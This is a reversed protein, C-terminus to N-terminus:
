SHSHQNNTICNGDNDYIPACEGSICDKSNECEITYKNDTNTLCYRGKPKDNEYILECVNSECDRNKNCPKDYNITEM